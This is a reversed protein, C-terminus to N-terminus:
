IHILSLEMGEEAAVAAVGEPMGIGLNTVAHPVLEMAARRAIIKREGMPSDRICMECYNHGPAGARIEVDGVVDYLHVPIHGPVDGGKCVPFGLCEGYVARQRLRRPRQVKVPAGLSRRFELAPVPDFELGHAPIPYGEVPLGDIQPIHLLQDVALLCGGQAVAHEIRLLVQQVAPPRQPLHHVRQILQHLPVGQRGETLQRKYVDQSRFAPSDMIM